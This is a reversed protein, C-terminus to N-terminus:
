SKLEQEVQATFDLILQKAAAKSAVDGHRREFEMLKTFVSRKKSLRLQLGCM